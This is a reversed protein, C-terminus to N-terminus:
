DMAQSAAQRPAVHVETAAVVREARSGATYIRVGRAMPTGFEWGKRWLAHAAQLDGAETTDRGDTFAVAQRAAASYGLRVETASDRLFRLQELPTDLAFGAEVAGSVVEDLTPTRGEALVRRAAQRAELDAARRRRRLETRVVEAEAALQQLQARLPLLERELRAV